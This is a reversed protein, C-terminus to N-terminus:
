RILMLELTQNYEPTQIKCIYIGSPLSLGHENKGDWQVAHTGSQKFTNELIQVTQGLMNMISIHVNSPVSLEYRITTSSNFPNPYNPFIRFSLINMTRDAQVGTEDDRQFYRVGGYGEGLLLEDLGHGNIDCFFPKSNGSVEIGGYNNTILNFTLSGVADQEYHFLNGNYCGVVMDLLGDGDMDRFIPASFYGVDIGNFNESVLNFTTSGSTSQEYHNLNGDSEGVVMDILGDGDLDTFCPVAHYGVAVGSFDESIFTFVTSGDSSQEYHNLEGGYEGIVLDLLSDGDLDTFTPTSYSGVDIGSFNESIGNLQISGAANQEFHNLNGNGEGVIIDLLGDGDLDAACPASTTGVDMRKMQILFESIPNFVTSGAAHQEYHNLNGDVEGIILDLLGDSDLDTFGPVAYGGVDINNFNYSILNLTTSGVANQEYHNLQGNEKGVIMDLLGDGDLDRFIPASYYGVDIGNFNESVLNFAASDAAVQEYHKLTGSSEGIILDLLGDGDLDTFSPTSHYGVDIGSFQDSMTTFVTSGAANQEYHNLDGSSKGMVLDLLSDGDLDTFSPASYEGASAGNFHESILNFITSGVANQEYHKLQGDEEGVIMDLLGDNDLDAFSPKTNNIGQGWLDDSIETYTQASAFAALFVMLASLFLKAKM